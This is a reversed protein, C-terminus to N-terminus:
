THYRDIFPRQYTRDQIAKEEEYKEDKGNDKAAHKKLDSFINWAPPSTSVAHGNHGVIKPLFKWRLRTNYPM